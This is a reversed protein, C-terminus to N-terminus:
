ASSAVRVRASSYPLVELLESARLKAQVGRWWEGTLVEGHTQLFAAELAADLGLFNIFTEPFVDNDAVYYWAESRMEDEDSQARPLDRFRCDTVHCLEDYDYFIV